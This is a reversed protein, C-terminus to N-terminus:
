DASSDAYMFRKGSSQRLAITTREGDTLKRTVWRFTAEDLYRQVHQRSVHHWAGRDADFALNVDRRAEDTRSLLTSLSNPEPTMAVFRRPPASMTPRLGWAALLSCPTM